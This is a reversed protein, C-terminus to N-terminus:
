KSYHYIQNKNKILYGWLNVNENIINKNKNLEIDGVNFTYINTELGLSKRIFYNSESFVLLIIILILIPIIFKM